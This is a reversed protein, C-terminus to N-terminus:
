NIQIILQNHHCQQYKSRMGALFRGCPYPTLIKQLNKFSTNNYYQISESVRYIQMSNFLEFLFAHQCFSVLLFRSFLVLQHTYIHMYINTHIMYIYIYIYMQIYTYPYVKKCM